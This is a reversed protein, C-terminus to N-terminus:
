TNGRKRRLNPTINTNFQRSPWLEKRYYIYQMIIKIDKKSSKIIYIFSYFLSLNYLHNITDILTIFAEGDKPRYQHTTPMNDITRQIIEVKQKNILPYPFWQPM